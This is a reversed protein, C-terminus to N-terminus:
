DQMALVWETIKKRMVKPDSHYMHDESRWTDDLGHKKMIKALIDLAAILDNHVRTRDKDSEKRQNLTVMSGDTRRFYHAYKEIGEMVQVFKNLIDEKIGDSLTDWQDSELSSWISALTFDKKLTNKYELLVREQREMVQEEPKLPSEHRSPFSEKPM